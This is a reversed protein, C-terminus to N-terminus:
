SSPKWGKPMTGKTRPDHYSSPKEKSLHELALKKNNIAYAFNPDIKLAQDYCEIAEKYRGLNAFAWGKGTLPYVDNPVIALAQDYWEIAEKHSGLNNLVAGKNNLATTDNPDVSLAKDFYVLAEKYKSQNILEVGKKRLKVIDESNPYSSPSEWGKPMKGKELLSSANESYTSTDSYSSPKWGKPMTGKTRLDHYSSPKEKSLFDLLLKKNDQALSYNPDLRLAKDYCEIAEQYKGQNSLALGREYLANVDEERKVKSERTVIPKMIPRFVFSNRNNAIAKEVQDIDNLLKEAMRLFSMNYKSALTCASIACERAFKIDGQIVIIGEEKKGKLMLDGIKLYCDLMSNGFNKKKDQEASIFHLSFISLARFYNWFKYYWEVDENKNSSSGFLEEIETMKAESIYGEAIGKYTIPYRLLRERGDILKIREQKNLEAIDKIRELLDSIVFSDLLNTTFFENAWICRPFNQIQEDDDITELPSNPPPLILVTQHHKNYKLCTTLEYEVGESLMLCESIIIDAFIILEDVVDEWKIDRLDLSPVKRFLISDDKGGLNQPEQISIFNIGQPLNSVLYEDTLYRNTENKGHFVDIDFKRLYLIFPKGENRYEEIVKVAANHLESRSTM